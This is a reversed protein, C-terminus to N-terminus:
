PIECMALGREHGACVRTGNALSLLLRHSLGAIIFDTCPRNRAETQGVGRPIHQHSVANRGEILELSHSVPDILNWSDPALRRLKDVVLKSPDRAFGADTGSFGGGVLRKM